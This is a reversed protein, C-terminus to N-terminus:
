SRPQTPRGALLRAEIQENSMQEIELLDRREPFECIVTDNSDTIWLQIEDRELETGFYPKCGPFVREAIQCIRGKPDFRPTIM